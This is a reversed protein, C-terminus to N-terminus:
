SDITSAGPGPTSQETAAWARDIIFGRCIIEAEHCEGHEDGEGGAAGRTEGIDPPVRSVAGEVNATNTDAGVLGDPLEDLVLHAAGEALV